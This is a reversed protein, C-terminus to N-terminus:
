SVQKTLQYHLDELEPLRGNVMGPDGSEPLRLSCSRNDARIQTKDFLGCKMELFFWLFLFSMRWIKDYNVFHRKLRDTLGCIIWPPNSSYGGFKRQNILTNYVVVPDQCVLFVYIYFYLRINKNKSPSAQTSCSFLQLFNACVFSSNPTLVALLFQVEALIRFRIYDMPRTTLTNVMSWSSQPEIGPQFM